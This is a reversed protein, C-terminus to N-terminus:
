DLGWAARWAARLAAIDDFVLDATLGSKALDDRNHVGSLLFISRLGARAAGEIDTDLRDGVMATATPHTGMSHVTQTFIGIEPKGIITPKVDTAAELFALLSGNGPIIGEPSPFTKDGNTGIFRAGDRIALSARKLTDYTATWDIGVVVYDAPRDNVLVFGRDQLAARVGDLGIPLIQAGPPAVQSLYEATAVSSTMINAAPVDIGMTALKAAFQAQTLSANNTLLRYPIAHATLDALFERAGPIVELGRYLVGDMDFVFAQTTALNLM